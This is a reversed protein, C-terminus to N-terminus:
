VARGEGYFVINGSESERADKLAADAANYIDKDSMGETSFAAGVSLTVVPLDDDGSALITNVSEVKSVIVDRLDTSMNTMVVAFTDEEIRCPFDTSRFAESLAAALRILVADGTDRGYVANFDAFNDIDILILVIDRTHTALFSDYGNRNSIGTLPDREAFTRLHEIRKANDEYMVNYANALYHLEYAGDAKLPENKQIEKVYNGIPKLIYMFLTLVLVMIVCLLLAVTVRLQFLHGQALTENQELNNNLYTLLATSSEQVENGIEQKHKEYDEGLVLDTATELATKGGENLRVMSTSANKVADPPNQVGYHSSAIRMAALEILSLANSSALADELNKLAQASHEDANSFNSRLVEVARGRRNTKNLEEVYADMYDSRGTTVYLRAQSTLFNSATLLDDIAEDCELHQKESAAVNAQADGVRSALIFAYFSLAIAIVTAIGCIVRISIGRETREKAENESM